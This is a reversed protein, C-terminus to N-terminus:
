TAEALTTPATAAAYSLMAGALLALEPQRKCTERAHVFQRSAGLMQTAALPLQKVPWRDRYCHRPEHIALVTITPGDAAADPRVLDAWKVRSASAPM